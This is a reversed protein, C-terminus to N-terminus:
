TSYYTLLTRPLTDIGLAWSGVGLWEWRGIGLQLEQPQSKSTTPLQSNVRNNRRPTPIRPDPSSDAVTRSPSAPPTLRRRDTARRMVTSSLCRAPSSIKRVGDAGISRM